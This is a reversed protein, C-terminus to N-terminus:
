SFLDLQDGAAPPCAFRSTDLELRRENLGLRAAALDFRRKLLEAYTGSGRMRQGFGSRYVKGGRTERILGMVRKARDPTHTELWEKFLYAIELPLRILIYSATSAGAAAAEGLIAEVEHDNLGPIM